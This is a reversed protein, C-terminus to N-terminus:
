HDHRDVVERGLQDAAGIARARQRRCGITRGPTEIVLAEVAKVAEGALGVDNM